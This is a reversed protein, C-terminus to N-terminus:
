RGRDREPVPAPRMQDLSAGEDLRKVFAQRIQQMYLGVDGGQSGATAREEIARLSIFAARLEPFRATAQAEPEQEFAMSRAPRVIADFVKRIPEVEPLQRIVYQNEFLPGHTGSLASALNWERANTRSFDLDLGQENALQRMFLQLSRGNGEPFPHTANAQVYVSVLQERKQEDSLDKASAFANTQEALGLWKPRIAAPDEFISVHGNEARKSLNTERLHGAWLYVDQFVMGHIAQLRDLGYGEVGLTTAGSLLEASRQKTLQYEVARLEAADTIGLKNYYVGADDRYRNSM